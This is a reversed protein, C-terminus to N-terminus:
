AGGSNSQSAISQGRENVAIVQVLVIDGATNNFLPTWFKIM